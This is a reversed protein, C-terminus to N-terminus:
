PMELSAFFSRKDEESVTEVQESTAQYDYREADALMRM